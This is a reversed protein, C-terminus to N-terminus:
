PGRAVIYCVRPLPTCYLIKLLDPGRKYKLKPHRVKLSLLAVMFMIVGTVIPFVKPLYTNGPIFSAYLLESNRNLVYELANKRLRYSYIYIYTGSSIFLITISPLQVGNLHTFELRCKLSSSFCLSM